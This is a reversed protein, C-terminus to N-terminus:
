RDGLVEDRRRQKRADVFETDVDEPDTYRQEEAYAEFARYDADTQPRDLLARPWLRDSLVVNLEAGLLVLQAALYFWSLLVIVIAFEGYTGQAGQLKHTVIATSGLQLAYWAVAAFVAGPMAERWTIERVTLWNFAIAFIGVDIAIAIIAGAIKAAFGLHISSLMSGSGTVLGSLATSVILGIGVVFLLVIARKTKDIVNPRETMPVNYVSNFATQATRAVALGSWLALALGVVLAAVNGTLHSQNDGISSGILPIQSLWSDEVTHQFGPNGALVYGLITTAALILPFISFFAYYAILAALNSAQDESFKRIVAYPLGLWDRRQQFRDAAHVGALLREKM